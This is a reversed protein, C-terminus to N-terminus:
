EGVPIPRPVVIPCARSSGQKCFVLNLLTSDRYLDFTMGPKLVSQETTIWDNQNVVTWETPPLGTVKYVGKPLAFWQNVDTKKFTVTRQKLFGSLDGFDQFPREFYLGLMTEANGLDAFDDESWPAHQFQTFSINQLSEISTILDRGPAWVCQDAPLGQPADARPGKLALRGIGTRLAGAPLEIRAEAPDIVGLEASLTAGPLLEYRYAGAPVLRLQAEGASIWIREGSQEHVLFFGGKADDTQLELGILATQANTVVNEPNERTRLCVTDEFPREVKPVSPTSPLPNGEMAFAALSSGLVTVLPAALLTAKM